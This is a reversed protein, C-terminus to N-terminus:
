LHCSPVCISAFYLKVGDQCSHISEHGPLKVGLVWQYSALHSGTLTHVSQVSCLYRTAALIQVGCRGVWLRTVIKVTSNLSCM